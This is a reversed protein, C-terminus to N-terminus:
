KEDDNDKVRSSDCIAGSDSDNMKSGGSDLDLAALFADQCEMPDVTYSMSLKRREQFSRRGNDNGDGNRTCGGSDKGTSADSPKRSGLSRSLSSRLRRTFSLTKDMVKAVSANANPEYSEAEITMISRSTKNMVKAVSANANPECSEAEVTM